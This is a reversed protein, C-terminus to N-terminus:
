WHLSRIGDEQYGPWRLPGGIGLPTVVVEVSVTKVMQIMQEATGTLFTNM